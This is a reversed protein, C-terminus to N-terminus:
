RPLSFFGDTKDLVGDAVMGSLKERFGGVYQYGLAEAIQRGSLPPHGDSLLRVVAEGCATKLWDKPATDALLRGDEAYLVMRRVPTGMWTFGDPPLDWLETTPM